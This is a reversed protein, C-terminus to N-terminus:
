KHSRLRHVLLTAALSVAIVIIAVQATLIVDAATQNVAIGALAWIVVLSYAIDRRTFIVLLTILVAVAVVLIAWIEASLGLRDWNEATLTIAVNAITAITLWGLYVSFPLHVAIKEKLSVNSKGINLRLYIAILTLLFAVIVITSYAIYLNQWLFLWLVNFVNTLIFLGNIQKQFPKNRQSPLVQYVLFIALLVYIVGWISFVYGAPTILTPYMDSVEATTIDGILTTNASLGNVVLTIIYAAINAYPLIAQTKTAM